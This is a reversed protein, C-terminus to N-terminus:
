PLDFFKKANNNLVGAADLAQMEKLQAYFKLTLFIDKPGSEFMSQDLRRYLVPTDTEILTQEIPTAYAAERLQESYMLAPTVSILFGLRIIEELVDKPGTYWHFVAKTVGVDKVMALCEPWAGRSHIIVPLDLQKALNLQVQFINKQQEKKEDNKRVWRYWFDLGIEGIAVAQDRHDKIFAITQDIENEKIMGPHIGFALFIRPEHFKNQIELNKQCTALDESPAVVACVGAQKAEKLAKEIDGAHDLHAHTDILSHTDNIHM